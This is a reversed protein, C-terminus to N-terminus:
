KLDSVLHTLIWLRFAVLIIVIGAIVLIWYLWVRM